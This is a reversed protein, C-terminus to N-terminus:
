LVDSRFALEFKLFDQNKWSVEDHKTGVLEFTNRGVVSQDVVVRLDVFAAAIFIREVVRHRRKERHEDHREVLEVFCNAVKLSCVM